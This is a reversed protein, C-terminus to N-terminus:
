TRCATATSTTPRARATASCIPRTPRRSRTSCASRAAPTSSALGGGPHGPAGILLDPRGDRNVDGASSVAAGYSDGSAEGAFTHLLSGNRGSICTPMGRRTARRARPAASSTTSATATSTAPTPSRSATRTAPSATSAGSRPAPAAPTSGPPAPTTAPRAAGRSASSRTPPATATSTRSRPSPGASTSTRAGGHAALPGRGTGQLRRGRSLSPVALALAAAVATAHKLM